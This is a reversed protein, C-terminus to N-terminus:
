SCFIQSSSSDTPPEAKSPDDEIPAGMVLPQFTDYNSWLDDHSNQLNNVEGSGNEVGFVM